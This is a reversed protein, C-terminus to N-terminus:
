LQRLSVLIAEWTKDESSVATCADLRFTATCRLSVETNDKFDAGRTALKFSLRGVKDELFLRPAHKMRRIKHKKIVPGKQRRKASGKTLTPKRQRKSVANRRPGTKARKRVVKRTPKM